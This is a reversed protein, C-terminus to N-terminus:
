RRKDCVPQASMTSHPKTPRWRPVAALRASPSDWIDANKSRCPARIARGFPAM